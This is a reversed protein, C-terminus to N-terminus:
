QGIKYLIVNTEGSKKDLITTTAGGPYRTHIENIGSLYPPMLVFLVNTNHPSYYLIAADTKFSRDECESFGALYRVSEYQCNWKDSYWLVYNHPKYIKGAEIAAQTENPLFLYNSVQTNPSYKFYYILNGASQFIILLLLIYFIGIRRIKLAREFFLAICFYMLVFSLIQRRYIGEVTLFLPSFSLLLTILIYWEYKNSKRFILIVGFLFFLIYPYELSYITGFADVYDPSFGLFFDQTKVLGHKIFQITSEPHNSGDTYFRALSSYATHHGFYYNPQLVMMKLLPLSTITFISLFLLLSVTYRRKANSFFLEVLSIFVLSVAFTPFTNYTYMGLGLFLGALAFFPNKGSSFAKILFYLSLLEFVPASILMYAIRSFHIQFLSFSFALSTLLSSKKSFFQRLFLYLIPVAIIGWFAISSRLSTISDGFVTLFFATVYLPGTPQGLASDVYPEIFGEHMIRKADLGTWGEDGHLGQPIQDLAILRPIGALLLLALIILLEIYKRKKFKKM